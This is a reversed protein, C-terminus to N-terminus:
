LGARLSQVYASPLGQETAASLIARIYEGSPKVEKMEPEAVVYTLARRTEGSELMVYLWLRDYAWPYGEKRNLAKLCHESVGYLVGWVVSQPEPVINAVGTGTRVSRRNFALRYGDVRAPGVVSVQSCKSEMTKMAMNSGYAFYLPVDTTTVEPLHAIRHGRTHLAVFPWGPDGSTRM